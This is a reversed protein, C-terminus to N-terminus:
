LLPPFRVLQSVVADVADALQKFSTFAVKSLHCPLSHTPLAPQNPFNVSAVAASSHVMAAILDDMESRIASIEAVDSGATDHLHDAGQHVLKAVDSHLEDVKASLESIRIEAASLQARAVVTEAASSEALARAKLFDEQSPQSPACADLHEIATPPESLFSANKQTQSEAVSSSESILSLDSTQVSISDSSVRVNTSAISAYTALSAELACVKARLECVADDLLAAHTQSEAL